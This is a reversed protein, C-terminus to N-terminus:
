KRRPFVDQPKPLSAFFDWLIDTANLDRTAEAVRTGAM